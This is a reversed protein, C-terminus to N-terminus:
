LYYCSRGLAPSRLQKSEPSEQPSPEAVEDAESAIEAITAHVLKIRSESSEKGCPDLGLSLRFYRSAIEPAHLLRLHVDGLYYYVTARMSAAHINNVDFASVADLETEKSSKIKRKKSTKETNPRTRQATTEPNKLLDLAQELCLVAEASNGIVGHAIGEQLAWGFAEFTRSQINREIRELQTMYKKTETSLVPPTSSELTTTSSSDKNKKTDVPNVAGNAIGAPRQLVMNKHEEQSYKREVLALQKATQLATVADETGGQRWTVDREYYMLGLKGWSISQPPQEEQVVIAGRSLARDYKFLAAVGDDRPKRMSVLWEQVEDMTNANDLAELDIVNSYVNCICSLVFLIFWIM